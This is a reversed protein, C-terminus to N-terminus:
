ADRHDFATAPRNADVEGEVALPAGESMHDGDVVTILAFADAANQHVPNKGIRAATAIRHEVQKGRGVGVLQLM